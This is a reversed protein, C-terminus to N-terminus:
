KSNREVVLKVVLERATTIKKPSKYATIIGTDEDFGGVEYLEYDEPHKNLMTGESNAADGFMRKAVINNACMFCDVYGITNDKTSYIKAM